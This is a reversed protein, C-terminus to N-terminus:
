PTKVPPVAKTTLPLVGTAKSNDARAAQLTRPCPRRDHRRHQHAGFKAAGSYLVRLANYALLSFAFFFAVTSAAV